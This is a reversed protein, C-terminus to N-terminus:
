SLAKSSSIVGRVMADTIQASEEVYTDTPMWGLEPTEGREFTSRFQERFPRLDPPDAVFRAYVWRRTWDPM